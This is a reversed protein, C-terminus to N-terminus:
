KGRKMKPAIKKYYYGIVRTVGIDFVIFVANMILYVIPTSADFTFFVVKFVLLLVTLAANFLALKVIWQLPVSGIREAYLKMIPYWGFFCAYVVANMKNPLILFGLAATMVFLAAGGGAGAEIVASVGCLSALAIFGLQGTPFACSLYLFVVALATFVALFAM